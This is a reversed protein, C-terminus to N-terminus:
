RCGTEIWWRLDGQYKFWEGHIRHKAFRKHLRKEEPGRGELIALVEIPVPNTKQIDAIRREPYDSVGIKVSTGSRIVYLDRHFGLRGVYSGSAIRPRKYITPAEPKPHAAPNDIAERIAAIAVDDFLNKRGAQLHCGPAEKLLDQFKRRSVSFFAAAEEMTLPRASVTYAEAGMGRGQPGHLVM